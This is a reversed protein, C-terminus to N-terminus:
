QRYQFEASLFLAQCFSSWAEFKIRASSERRRRDDGELDAIYSKMYGIAEDLEEVSPERGFFEGYAWSVRAMDSDLEMLLRACADACRVVFENNLLYLGQTPVYTTSRRSVILSPDAGDFLSFIDTMNDRIVPLYISRHVNNVDNVSRLVRNRGFSDVPGEGAHSVASGVPPRLELRQSVALMSDRLLEADMRDPSMRWLYRNGPDIAIHDTNSVSDQRYTRSMVLRKILRKTSWGDEVFSVALFDLLRPHTPPSGAMGFDHTPVLGSRFLQAWVRNVYVRATLPNDSSAIWQALELRGSTTRDIDLPKDLLVQLGGRQVFEDSPNDPEGRVYVPSDSIRSSGSYTFDGFRRQRRSRLSRTASKDSVGMAMSIPNGDDDFADLKAELLAIRGSAFFRQLGDRSDRISDRISEIQSEIRERENSSLSRKGVKLNAEPSLPILRTPRQANIYRVTGYHTQTSRFIGALAYYDVQPIPDFKHDHCRACAATVGLFVQTTVDIQEDVVDLEFKVGNRENLTKPGIALFGTAVIREVEQNLSDSTLLDGALQEVVFQNYPKDSNFASVVYDRYRWAEPFYFNVTKGTSEAYRSVDLWHRAWKEGFRDSSLLRDVLEEYAGLSTDNVFEDVEEKSPPLGILDLYLRRVLKARGADTSPALGNRELKSLVFRDIDSFPWSQNKTVPVDPQSPRRYAWHKRGEAITIAVENSRNQESSKRPDHGGQRVWREFDAIVADSLKQDPPMKLSQDRYRIAKILISERIRGPVIAPGSDGGQLTAEKSDLALGGEMEGTETSHCKYCREVLVPRIKKEFFSHDVNEDQAVASHTFCFVALTLPFISLNSKANINM